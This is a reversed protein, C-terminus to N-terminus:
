DTIPYKPVRSEDTQLYAIHQSDPSWFYNSRVDLEEEYAWDVEGNLIESSTSTTLTSEHRDSLAILHLNHDKVYSVTKGDPSFQPDDGSGMGTSALKVMDKRALDYRWIVGTNDFLLQKGDPSWHYSPMSYRGRHDRDQEDNPATYIAGMKSEPALVSANGSGANVQILDNPQGHQNDESVYTVNEGNPSWILVRPPTGLPGGNQFIDKVTWAKGGVRPVSQAPLGCVSFLCGAVFCSKWGIRM